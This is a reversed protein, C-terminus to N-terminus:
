RTEAAPVALTFSQITEGEADILNVIIPGQGDGQRFADVIVGTDFAFTQVTELGQCLPFSASFGFLVDVQVPFSEKISGDWFLSGQSRCSYDAAVSLSLLDDELFADAVRYDLTVNPGPEGQIVDEVAAPATPYAAAFDGTDRNGMLSIVGLPATSAIEFYYSKPPLDKLAPFLDSFILLQKSFAYLEFSHTALTEGELTRLATFIANPEVTALNARPTLNLVAAGEWYAEGAAAGPFIKHRGAILDSEHLHPSLSTTGGAPDYRVSVLVRKSGSITLHSADEHIQALPREVVTNPPVTFRAPPDLREGDARYAFVEVTKATSANNSLLLTTQFGGGARTVHAIYRFKSRPAAEQAAAWGAALAILPLILRKM